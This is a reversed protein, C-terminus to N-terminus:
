LVTGGTWVYFLQLLAIPVLLPMFPLFVVIPLNPNISALIHMATDAALGFITESVLFDWLHAGLPGLPSIVNLFAFAAVWPLYIPLALPLIPLAFLVELPHEFAWFALASFGDVMLALRQPVMGLYAIAIPDVAAAAGAVPNVAASAPQLLSANLAEAGAYANVSASLRQVFEEHFAGAKEALKQYEQAHQSFLHAIAASVEDGAAPLLEVTPGAAALSAVDLISGLNALESTAAEILEPVVISQSM